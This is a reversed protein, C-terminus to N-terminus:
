AHRGAVMSARRSRCPKRQSTRANAPGVAGRKSRGHQNVIVVVRDGAGVYDEVEFEWGDWADAWEANFEMAGVVGTYIQDGPWDLRSVDWVIIPV